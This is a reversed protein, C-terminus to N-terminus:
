DHALSEVISAKAARRAPMVAALVGAAGALLVFGTVQLYPLSFIAGDEMANTAAWGFAVGLVVGTVAGIVAMVLAEVSLMRRLQRRTLGLARLLASERTREVVSLTLTNAIGFLAIVIALGLLGGFIMLMMDIADSVSKEFEASSYVKAAPYPRAATEVAKRAADTPVGDRDKIYIASDDPAAFYRTFDAEPVILAGLTTAPTSFVAAIRV